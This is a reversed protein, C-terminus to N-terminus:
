KKLTFSSSNVYYTRKKVKDRKFERIITDASKCSKFIDYGEARFVDIIQERITKTQTM